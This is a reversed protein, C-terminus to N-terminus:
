VVCSGHIIRVNWSKVTEARRIHKKNEFFIPMSSSQATKMNSLPQVSSWYHIANWDPGKLTTKCHKEIHKLMAEFTGTDTQPTSALRIWPRVMMVEASVPTRYESGTFRFNM